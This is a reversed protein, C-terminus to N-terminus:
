NTYVRTQNTDYHERENLNLVHSYFGSALSKNRFGVCKEYRNWSSPRENLDCGKEEEPPPPPSM